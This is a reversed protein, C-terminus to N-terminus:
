LQYGFPFKITRPSGGYLIHITFLLFMLICAYAYLINAAFSLELKAFEASKRFCKFTM